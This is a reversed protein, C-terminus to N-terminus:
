GQCQVTNASGVLPKAGLGGLRVNFHESCRAPAQGRCGRCQSVLLTPVLFHGSSNLWFIDMFFECFLPIRTTLLTSLFESDM